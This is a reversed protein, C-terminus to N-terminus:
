GIATRSLKGSNGEVNSCEHKERKLQELEQQASISLGYLLEKLALMRAKASKKRNAALQRLLANRSRRPCAPYRTPLDPLSLLRLAEIRTSSSGRSGLDLLINKPCPYRM